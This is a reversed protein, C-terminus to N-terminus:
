LLGAPGLLLVQPEARAGLGGPRRAEVDPLRPRRSGPGAEAGSGPRAGVRASLVGWGRGPAERVGCRQRADSGGADRREGCRRRM